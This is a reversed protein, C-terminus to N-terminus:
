RKRKFLYWWLPTIWDGCCYEKKHKEGQCVFEVTLYKKTYVTLNEVGSFNTPYIGNLFLSNTKVDFFVNPAVQSGIDSILPYDFRYWRSDKCLLIARNIIMGESDAFVDKVEIYADFTDDILSMEKEGIYAVKYKGKCNTWVVYEQPFKDYLAMNAMECSKYRKGFAMAPAPDYMSPYDAFFSALEASKEKIEGQSIFPSFNIFKM